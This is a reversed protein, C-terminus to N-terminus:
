LILVKIIPAPEIPKLCESTKFFIPCLIENTEFLISKFSSIKKRYMFSEFCKFWIINNNTSIGILM